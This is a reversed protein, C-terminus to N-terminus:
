GKLTTHHHLDGDAGLWHVEGMIFTNAGVPMAGSITVYLGKHPGDAVHIMRDTADERKAREMLIKAAEEGGKADLVQQRIHGFRVNDQRPFEGATAKVVMRLTRVFGVMEAALTMVHPPTNDGWTAAKEMDAAVQLVAEALSM